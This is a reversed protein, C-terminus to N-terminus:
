EVGPGKSGLLVRQTEVARMLFNWTAVAGHMTKMVPGATQCDPCAVQWKELGPLGHPLVQAPVHCFMCPAPSQATM